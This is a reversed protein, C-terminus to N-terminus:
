ARTPLVFRRTAEAFGENIPTQLDLPEILMAMGQPPRGSTIALILDHSQPRM